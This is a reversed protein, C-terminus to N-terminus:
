IVEGNIKDLVANIDGIVENDLVSAVVANVGVLVDIDVSPVTECTFTVTGNGTESAYIYSEGYTKINELSAYPVVFIPTNDTVGEVSVTITKSSSWGSAPLTVKVAKELGDKDSLDLPVIGAEKLSKPTVIKSDATGNIIDGATAIGMLSIQVIKDINEALPQVMKYIEEVREAETLVTDKIGEIDKVLEQITPIIYENVYQQLSQRTEESLNDLRSIIDEVKASLQMYDEASVADTSEEAAGINIIRHGNMDLVQEMQNPIVGTRSLTDNIAQQLAKLNANLAVLFNSENYSVQTLENIEVKNSM